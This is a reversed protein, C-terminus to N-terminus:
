KQKIISPDLAPDPNTGRVLSDPDLLGLFMLIKRIRIRFVSNLTTNISRRDNKKRYYRHEITLLAQTLSVASRLFHVTRILDAKAFLRLFCVIIARRPDRAPETYHWVYEM